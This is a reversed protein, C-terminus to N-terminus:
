RPDFRTVFEITELGLASRWAVGRLNQVMYHDM